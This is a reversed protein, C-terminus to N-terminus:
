LSSEYMGDTDELRNATSDGVVMVVVEKPMWQKVVMHCFLPVMFDIEDPLDYTLEVQNQYRPSVLDRFFPMQSMYLEKKNQIDLYWRGKWLDSSCGVKVWFDGEDNEKMLKTLLNQDEEDEIVIQFNELEGNLESLKMFQRPQYSSSAQSSSEYLISNTNRVGTNSGSSSRIRENSERWNRTGAEFGDGGGGEEISPDVL